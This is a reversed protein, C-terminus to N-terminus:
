VLVVPGYDDVHDYDYFEQNNTINIAPVSYAKNFNFPKNFIFMNGASFKDFGICDGIDSYLLCKYPNGYNGL